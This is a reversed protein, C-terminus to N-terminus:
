RNKEEKSSCGCGCDCGGGCDSCDCFKGSRLQRIKRRVVWLVYLALLQRKYVDKGEMTMPMRSTSHNMMGDRVEKTLNLGQCNKELLEVM